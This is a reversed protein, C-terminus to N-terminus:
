NVVQSSMPLFRNSHNQVSTTVSEVVEDIIEDGINAGPETDPIELCQEMFRDNYMM